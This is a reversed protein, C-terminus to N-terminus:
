IFVILVCNFYCRCTEAKKM